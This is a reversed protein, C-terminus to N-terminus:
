PGLKMTKTRCTTKAGGSAQNEIYVERLITEPVRAGFAGEPDVGYIRVNRDSKGLTYMYIHM